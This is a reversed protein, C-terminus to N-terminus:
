GVNVERIVLQRSGLFCFYVYFGRYKTFGYVSLEDFLAFIECEYDLIMQNIKWDLIIKKSCM